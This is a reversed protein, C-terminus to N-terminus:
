SAAGPRELFIFLAAGAAMHLRDCFISNQHTNPNV